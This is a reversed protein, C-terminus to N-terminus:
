LNSTNIKTHSEDICRGIYEQVDEPKFPKPLFLTAGEELLEAIAKPGVKSSIIIVPLSKLEESKRIMKVLDRGDLGPMVVDTILLDIDPNTELTTWAHRGDPSGIVTHGMEEVMRSIVDRTTVNDEAVLIKAM